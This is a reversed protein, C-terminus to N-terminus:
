NRGKANRSRYREWDPPCRIIDLDEQDLTGLERSAFLLEDLDEAELFARLAKKMDLLKVIELRWTDYIWKLEDHPIIYSTVWGAADLSFIMRNRGEYNSSHVIIPCVPKKTELYDVVDKGTGPDFVQGERERNPGLDHDLSMFVVSSLNEKLWKNTDPANDFLEIQYQPYSETLLSQMAMLRDENDDLILIVPNM